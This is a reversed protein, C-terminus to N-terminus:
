SIRSEKLRFLQCLYNHEAPAKRLVDANSIYYNHWRIAGDSLIFGLYLDPDFLPPSLSAFYAVPKLFLLFSMMIEVAPSIAASPPPISKKLIPTPGAYSTIFLCIVYIKGGRM